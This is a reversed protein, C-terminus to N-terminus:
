PTAAFLLYRNVFVYIRVHLAYCLSIMCGVLDLLCMYIYIYICVCMHAYIDIYTYVYMERERPM